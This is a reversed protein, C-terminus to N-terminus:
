EWWMLEICTTQQDEFYYTHWRWDKREQKLVESRKIAVEEEWFYEYHIGNADVYNTPLVYSPKEQSTSSDIEEKTSSENEEKKTENVDKNVNNEKSISSSNEIRNPIEVTAILTEKEEKVFLTVSVSSINGYEDEANVNISHIGKTSLDVDSSLFLKFASLDEVIFNEELIKEIDEGDTYIEKDWTVFIPAITDQVQIKFERFTDKYEVKGCYVGVPPYSEEQQKELNITLEMDKYISNEKVKVYSEIEQSIEEGYEVYFIDEKLEYMSLIRERNEEKIEKAYVYTCGGIFLLLLVGIIGIVWKKEKWLTKKTEETKSM